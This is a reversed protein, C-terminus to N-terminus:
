GLQGNILPLFSVLVVLTVDPWTGRLTESGTQKTPLARVKRLPQKLPKDDHSLVTWHTTLYKTSNIQQQCQIPM